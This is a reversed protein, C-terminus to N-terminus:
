LLNKASLFAATFLARNVLSRENFFDKLQKPLEFYHSPSYYFQKMFDIEIRCEKQKFSCKNLGFTFNKHVQTRDSVITNTLIAKKDIVMKCAEYSMGGSDKVEYHPERRVHLNSNGPVFELRTPPTNIVIKIEFSIDPELFLYAYVFACKVDINGVSQMQTEKIFNVCRDWDLDGYIKRVKHIRKKISAYLSEFSDTTIAVSAFAHNIQEQNQVIKELEKLKLLFDYLQDLKKSQSNIIQM